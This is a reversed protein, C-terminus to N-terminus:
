ANWGHRADRSIEEVEGKVKEGEKGKEQEEVEQKVLQGVIEQLHIMFGQAVLDVATPVALAVGDWECM